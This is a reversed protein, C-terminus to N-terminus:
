DVRYRLFLHDEATMAGLLHLSQSAPLAGRVIPFSQEGGVLVPAVTLFLEDILEEAFFAANLSPGGELLVSRVGFDAFLSRLVEGPLTLDSGVVEAAVEEPAPAGFAAVRLGPDAFLPAGLPLRGSRTLTALLPRAALGNALRRQQVAESRAPANYGEIEITKTGAFVCDVSERLAAFLAADAAGGLKGTDNGIRAQGDATSVMNVVVYPRDTLALASFDLSGYVSRADTIEEGGHPPLIRTLNKEPQAASM